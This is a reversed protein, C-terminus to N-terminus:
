DQARSETSLRAAGYAQIFMCVISAYVVIKQGTAQVRVGEPTDFSPGGIMLWVYAALVLAFIGYVLAYTNPYRRNFLIAPIYFLVAVLFTRFANMVFQGHIKQAVDAPALAIGIFCTGSVVGFISGLVALVGTARRHWFYPLVAVFYAVLGAGAVTLAVIFLIACLTNTSGSRTVMMGLESFFNDFFSYGHSNPDAVSGGPFLLMAILTLVVFQVCAFMTFQFPRKGWSRLKNLM